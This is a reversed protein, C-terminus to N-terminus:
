SDWEVEETSIENIPDLALGFTVDGDVWLVEDDWVVEDEDVWEMEDAKVTWEIDDYWFVLEFDEDADFWVVDDLFYIDEFDNDIMHVQIM